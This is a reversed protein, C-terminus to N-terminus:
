PLLKYASDWFDYEHHSSTIFINELDNKYKESVNSSETDIYSKIQNSLEEFEKSSYLEIWKSYLPAHDPLGKSKLKQGIESYGWACPLISVAIDLASKSYAVKLLHNTYSHTVKSPLTKELEQQTIGFDSCFSIHLDMETNITEHLLSSFFKMDSIKETKAVCIAIVKCFEILFIYDQKMFYQFNTLPLKGIGIEQIFPHSQEKEWLENAQVRLYKSFSM